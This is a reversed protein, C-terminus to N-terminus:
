RSSVGFSNKLVSEKEEISLVLDEREIIAEAVGDKLERLEGRTGHAMDVAAVAANGPRNGDSSGTPTYVIRWAHSECWQEVINAAYILKTEYALASNTM